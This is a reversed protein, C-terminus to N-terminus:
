PNETGAGEGDGNVAGGEDNEYRSMDEKEREELITDIEDPTLFPLKELITKDDLYQAASLVVQTEEAKNIVPNRKYKPADEIELLDLVAYIFDNIRAEFDDTKLDLNTYLGRIATATISGGAIAKTDVAMADDYISNRLNTLMAEKGQYPVDLTHAEAQSGDDDVTAAKIVRMREVFKALDVDDMGGSNKITWYIVSADDLDNALGSQILDYGDIKEQLGEFDSQRNSSDNAYLPVIPFGPYNKGDIIEVGDAQTERVTQIYKQKEKLVEFAPKDERNARREIYETYGDEEYLTARMPKDPAIQWFRIGAHLAGDEEGYLPVFELASFVDIRDYNVFGYAAGGWLAKKALNMMMTDFKKGGLKEKTEENNFTVGNGLLYSVEQRVFFPFFGNRFKYCASYYDPVAEGSLKFLAKQYKMITVNRREYYERAEWAELYHKSSKYESIAAYTFLQKERENDAIELLDEYTKM